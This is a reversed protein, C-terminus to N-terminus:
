YELNAEVARLSREYFDLQQCMEEGASRFLNRIAPPPSPTVVQPQLRPALRTNPSGRPTVFSDDNANQQKKAAIRDRFRRKVENIKNNDRRGSEEAASPPSDHRRMTLSKALTVSHEHGTFHTSDSQLELLRQQLAELEREKEEQIMRMEQKALLAERAALEAKVEARQARRAWVAKERESEEQDSGPESCYSSEYTIISSAGANSENEIKSLLREYRMVLHRIRDRVLTFAQEACVLKKSITKVEEMSTLYEMEADTMMGDGADGEYKLMEELEIQRRTADNLERRLEQGRGFCHCLLLFHTLMRAGFSFGCM